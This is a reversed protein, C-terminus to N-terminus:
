WRPGCREACLSAHQAGDHLFHEYTEDVVLWANHRRHLCSPLSLLDIALCHCHTHLHKSSRRFLPCSDILCAVLDGVPPVAGPDPAADVLPVGGGHPEGAHHPARPSRARPGAGAAGGPAPPKHNHMYTVISTYMHLFVSRAGVPLDLDDDNGKKLFFVFRPARARVRLDPLLSAPDWKCCRVAAQAIQLALRHSFYYPALLVAEDGPDCLALAVHSFAQHTPHPTTCPLTQDKTSIPQFGRRHLTM